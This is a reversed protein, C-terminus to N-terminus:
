FCKVLIKIKKTPELKPEATLKMVFNLIKKQKKILFMLWHKKKKQLNRTRAQRYTEYLFKTKKRTKKILFMLQHKKKKTPKSVLNQFM